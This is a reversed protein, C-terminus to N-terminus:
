HEETKRRKRGVIVALMILGLGCALLLIWSVIDTTDGTEPGNPPDFEEITFIWVVDGKLQQFKNDLDIPVILDATLTMSSNAPFVGLLVNSALGDQQDAQEEYLESNLPSVVKLHLQELFEQELPLTNDEAEMRLYVRIPRKSSNVIDIQQTLVDGPMVDKFSAFLDTPSGTGVDRFVFLTERGTYDVTPNNAALALTPVALVMLAILLAIWRNKRM